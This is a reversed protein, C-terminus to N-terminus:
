QIAKSTVWPQSLVNIFNKIIIKCFGCVIYNISQLEAIEICMKSERPFEEPFITPLYSIAKIAISLYCLKQADLDFGVTKSRQMKNAPKAAVFLSSFPISQINFAKLSSLPFDALNYLLAAHIEGNEMPQKDWM